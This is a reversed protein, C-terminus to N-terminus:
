SVKDYSGIKDIFSRLMDINKQGPRIEFRSNLDLGLFKPIRTLFPMGSFDPGIGGGVLFPKSWSYNSLISHCFQKGNGGLKRGKADFLVLECVQQYEAINKPLEDSVRFVKIPRVFSSLAHCYEVSENGHLQVYRFGYETVLKYVDGIPKNVTVAVRNIDEPIISFDIEHACGTVDRLSNQYFIFGLFNPKLAVLQNLNDNPTIGCIKIEVM